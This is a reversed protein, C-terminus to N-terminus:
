TINSPKFKCVFKLKVVSEVGVRQVRVTATGKRVDIGALIAQQGALDGRVVLVNKGIKPIVCQLSREPLQLVDGSDSMEVTVLGSAAEIEVVCGKRKFYAGGGLTKDMVKVILSDRCWVLGNGKAPTGARQAGAGHAHKPKEAAFAAAVRKKAHAGSDSAEERKRKNVREQATTDDLTEAFLSSVPRPGGKRSQQVSKSSRIEIGISDGGKRPAIGTSEAFTVGSRAAASQARKAKAKMDRLERQEESASM